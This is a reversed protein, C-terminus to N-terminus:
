ADPGAHGDAKPQVQHGFSVQYKPRAFQIIHHNYQQGMWGDIRDHDILCGDIGDVNDGGGRELMM